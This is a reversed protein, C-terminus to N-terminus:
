EIQLFRVLHKTNIFINFLYKTLRGCVACFMVTRSRYVSVTSSCFVEFETFRYATFPVVSELLCLLQKSSVQRFSPRYFFGRLKFQYECAVYAYNLNFINEHM